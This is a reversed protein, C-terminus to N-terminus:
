AFIKRKPATWNIRIFRPLRTGCPMDGPHIDSSFWLYKIQDTIHDVYAM